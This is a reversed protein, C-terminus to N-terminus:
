YSYILYDCLPNHFLPLFINMSQIFQKQASFMSILYPSFFIHLVFSPKWYIGKMMMTVHLENNTVNGWSFAHVAPIWTATNKWIWHCISHCQQYVICHLMLHYLFLQRPKGQNAKTREGAILTTFSVFSLTDKWWQKHHLWIMMIMASAAFVLHLRM